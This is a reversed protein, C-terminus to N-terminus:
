DCPKTALAYVDGHHKDHQVMIVQWGSLWEILNLMNINTYHEGNLEGQYGDCRHPARPDSAATLILFGGLKLARWAADIQGRADPDHEMTEATIVIDYEEGGDFDQARGVFNVGKGPWPDVGIYRTNPFLARPSGNVDHAGFELVNMGPRVNVYEAAKQIFQWAEAHM